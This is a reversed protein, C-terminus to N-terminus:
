FNDQKEGESGYTGYVLSHPQIGTYRKRKDKLRNSSERLKKAQLFHHRPNSIFDRKTKEESKNSSFSNCGGEDQEKEDTKSIM